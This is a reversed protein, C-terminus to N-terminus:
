MRSDRELLTTVHLSRPSVWDRFPTPFILTCEGVEPVSEAVMMALRAAVANHDSRGFFSVRKVGKDGKQGGKEGLPAPEARASM